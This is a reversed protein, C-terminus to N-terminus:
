VDHLYRIEFTFAGYRHGDTDDGDIWAAGEPEVSILGALAPEYRNQLASWIQSGDETIISDDAAPGLHGYSVWVELTFVYEVGSGYIGDDVPQAPQPINLHFNRLSPGPVEDVSPVYRFRSTDHSPHTPVIAKIQAIFDDRIIRPTTTQV